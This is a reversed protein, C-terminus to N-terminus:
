TLYVCKNDKIYELTSDWVEKGWEEADEIYEFRQYFETPEDNVDVGMIYYAGYDSLILEVVRGDGLKETKYIPRIM